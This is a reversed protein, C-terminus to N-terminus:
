TSKFDVIHNFNDMLLAIVHKYHEAIIGIDQLLQFM